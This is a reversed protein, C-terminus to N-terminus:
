SRTFLSYLEEITEVMREWSFRKEENRVNERFQGSKDEKFFRIVADALADPDAPPVIYGTKGDTVAEPLGGVNTAIVPLGFGFAIQVIGSQTASIYPCVCLDAAAFYPEVEADPVYGDRIMFIDKVGTSDIMSMYEERLAGFDGVVCIRVNDLGARIKPAAKILNDLGKYKQVFGFFLLVKENTDIDLANCASARDMGKIRYANYTPHPNRKFPMDPLMSVLNAEDEGSHVICGSAKKLVSRTLIRDFPFRAHPLVNHCTIMVPIGRLMSLLSKYCPTFYPHVWQVIVLDPKMDRIIRATRIWNFPDVTNLIYRANEVEFTKDSYDRQEKKFIIRPYQMSFSVPEVEYKQRLAKVLLGTYHAIGSNFPYVPGIMVIKRLNNPDANSM